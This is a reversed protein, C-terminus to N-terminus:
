KGFEKICKGCRFYYYYEEDNKLDKNFLTCVGSVPLNFCCDRGCVEKDIDVVIDMKKKIKM